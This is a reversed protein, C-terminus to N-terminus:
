GLSLHEDHPDVLAITFGRTQFMPFVTTSRQIKGDRVVGTGGKATVELEGLVTALAAPNREHWLLVPANNGHPAVHEGDVHAIVRDGANIGISVDLTEPARCEVVPHDIRARM